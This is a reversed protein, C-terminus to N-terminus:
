STKEMRKNPWLILGIWFCLWNFSIDVVEGRRIRGGNTMLRPSWMWWNFGFMPNNGVEKFHTLDENKDHRGAMGKSFTLKM